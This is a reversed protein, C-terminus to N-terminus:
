TLEKLFSKIQRLKALEEERAGKGEEIALAASEIDDAIKVLGNSAARLRGAIDSLRDFPETPVKPSETAPHEPVAPAKMVTAEKKEKVSERRFSGPVVERILSAAKLSNICGRLIHIDMGAGTESKLASVIDLVTCSRTSEDTVFQYVKQAIHTQGRLLSDRRQPTM